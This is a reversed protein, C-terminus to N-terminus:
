SQFKRGVNDGEREEFTDVGSCLFRAEFSERRRSRGHM